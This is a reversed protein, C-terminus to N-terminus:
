TLQNRTVIAVLSLQVWKFISYLLLQKIYKHTNYSDWLLSYANFGKQLRTISRQSKTLVMSITLHHYALLWEKFGM